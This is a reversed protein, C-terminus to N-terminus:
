RSAHRHQFPLQISVRSTFKGEQTGDPGPLREWFGDEPCRIKIQELGWLTRGVAQLTIHFHVYSKMVWSWGFEARWITLFYNKVHAGSNGGRPSKCM